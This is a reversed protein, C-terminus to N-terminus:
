LVDEEKTLPIKNLTGISSEISKMLDSYEDNPIIYDIQYPHKSNNKGFFKFNVVKQDMIVMQYFNLNNIRSLDNKKLTESFNDLVFRKYAQRFDKFSATDPVNLYVSIACLANNEDNFFIEKPTLQYHPLDSITLKLQNKLQSIISKDLRKWGLPPSFQLDLTSDIFVDSLLENNINFSLQEYEDSTEKESTCDFNAISILIVFVILIMLKLHSM